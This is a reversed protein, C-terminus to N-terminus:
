ANPAINARLWAAFAAEDVAGDALALVQTAADAEGAILRWGNIELFVACALFAARKSGDIFPHNRVLGFAYAAALAAHDTEGYSYLNRPRALASELLGAERLGRAGGFVTLSEAHAVVLAKYAVWVPARTPDSM